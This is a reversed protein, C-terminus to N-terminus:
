GTSDSTPSQTVSGEEFREGGVLVETTNIHMCTCFERRMQEKKSIM